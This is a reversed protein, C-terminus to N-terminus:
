EASLVPAFASLGLLYDSGYMVMDIALDNGTYIKFEPRVRDRLRLRDWELERDLSSHKIGMCSDINMIGEVVEISYISGFPAFMKGLEFGIFQSCQSGIWQYSEIVKEDAQQTLGYSQFVIPTGGCKQIAEFAAAYRDKAFAEGDQDTMLFRYYYLLFERSREDPFL